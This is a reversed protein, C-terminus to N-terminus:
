IVGAGATMGGKLSVQTLILAPQKEGSLIGRMLMEYAKANHGDILSADMGVGDNATMELLVVDADRPMYSSLCQAVVASPAIGASSRVPEIRANLFARKLYKVYLAFFDDTGPSSADTGNTAVGGIAVIKIPNGRQLDNVVRRFRANGAQYVNSAQIQRLPTAFSYDLVGRLADGTIQKACSLAACLFARV